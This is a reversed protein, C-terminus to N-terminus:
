TNKDCYFSKLIFLYKFSKDEKLSIIFNKFYLFPVYLSSLYSLFLYDGDFAMLANCGSIGAM